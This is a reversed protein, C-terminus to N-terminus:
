LRTCPLVASSGNPLPLLLLLMFSFSLTDTNTDKHVTGMPGCWDGAMQGPPGVGALLLDIQHTPGTDLVARGNRFLVVRQQSNSKDERGAVGVGGGLGWGSFIISKCQQLELVGRKGRGGGGVWGLCACICVCLPVWYLLVLLHKEM